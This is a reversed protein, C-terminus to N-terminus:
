KPKAPSPQPPADAGPEDELDSDDECAEHGPVAYASKVGREAALRTDQRGDRDALASKYESLADERKCQLDLMRGLYIHAWALTRQDKSTTLTKQFEDYAQEPHGTILNVRALIFNARAADAVSQITDTEKALVQRAMAAAQTTDGQSLRVEALEMGSLKRPASRELVDEDAEKDFVVQRAQKVEADVDMSYVIEGINDNLSAPDHEFLKMANYFYKTLVFGQAMNHNLAAQRVAEMKQEVLQREHEYRPLASRDVGSPIRYAPIGTDMTRSEIAKILCEITLPVPDSRYRFNMPADSVVKIIPNSREITNSRAYLLPDIVYHLYTHKVDTLRIKGDVPSLIVIYDAGYVRANVLAPSLMPEIVVIFRRGEYSSAPIKLYTNTGVIMQSLPDHLRNIQEDYYHNTALWIGHLDVSQVFARLLPLVEFVQNADPPMETQDATVEMEPPPSLYLSLSIYQSVDKQGGTLNHQAVYLCFADRNARADESKTLAQTIQERVRARVPDSSELGNDYGCANLSAAMIFVPEASILSITPGAPDLQTPAKERAYTQGQAPGPQSSSSSQAFVPFSAALLLGFAAGFTIFRFYRSATM